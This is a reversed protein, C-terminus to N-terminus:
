VFRNSVVYASAEVSGGNGGDLSFKLQNNSGYKAKDIKNESLNNTMMGGQVEHTLGVM